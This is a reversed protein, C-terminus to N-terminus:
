IFPIYSIFDDENLNIMMPQIKGGKRVNLSM